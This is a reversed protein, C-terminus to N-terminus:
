RKLVLTMKNSARTCATYLWRAHEERDFPFGEEVVLVNPWESGQARHTTIAYGYNFEIPLEPNEKYKRISYEEQPTFIKEGTTLAQLDIPVQEYIDGNDTEISTLLVPAFYNKGRANYIQVIEEFEKIYGITGNILPQYKNSLMDWSNRLCIVKDGIKPYAGEFGAEARIYENIDFRTRNTATLIQDAWSYMGSCLDSKRVVNADNGRFPQIIKRERIGMSLCIIDSEKAQRMVEDLFIDPNDLVHNDQSKDVPPLQFPDGCAIVHRGHSLLLDWLDKPLMSIEDVIIVKYNGIAEKPRFVFKGSPLQKSYYLLKHATTANPCGKNRLVESAKGTFSVYAVDEEPNLNLASIIFSILTSKGSGAYGAIVTYPKRNNYNEIAIKLGQEQKNTLVM